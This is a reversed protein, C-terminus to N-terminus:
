GRLRPREVSLMGRRLIGHWDCDAIDVKCRTLYRLTVLAFNVFYVNKNISCGHRAQLSNASSDFDFEGDCEDSFQQIIGTLFLNKSIEVHCSRNYQAKLAEAKEIYLLRTKSERIASSWVALIM